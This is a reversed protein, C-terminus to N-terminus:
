TLNSQSSWKNSNKHGGFHGELESGLTSNATAAAVESYILRPFSLNFSRSTFFFNFSARCDASISTVQSLRYSCLLHLTDRVMALCHANPNFDSGLAVTVGADIMRRAPPANLRLVYAATPLLVAITGADAMAKLGADSVEELHSIAQAGIEAGM